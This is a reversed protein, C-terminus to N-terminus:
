EFKYGEFGNKRIFESLAATPRRKQEDLLLANRFRGLDVYASFLEPMPLGLERFHARGSMVANWKAVNAPNRFFESQSDATVGRMASLDPAPGAAIRALLARQAPTVIEIRGIMVRTTEAPISIKLPLLADIRSRPLLYFLRLGPSKFYSVEWTRLLAHAEDAFLGAHTLAAHMEVQLRALHEPSFADSAFSDPVTARPEVGTGLAGLSRFACAGDRGVEVLWAAAVPLDDAAGESRVEITKAAVNRVVRLSAKVNGVGRYFLFKEREGDSTAIMASSVDRPTLWVKEDTEPGTGEKGLTVNKWSLEGAADGRLHGFGTVYDTSNVVFTRDPRSADFGPARAVASPFFETLWGGSFRVQVDIPQPKWGKPPHFYIVPTELRMTVDPHCSPAGQFFHPPAESPSLLFHGALRHVFHPLPEDETNIGGIPDGSEDQLSTFTGWEHIVCAHQADAAFIGAGALMAGILVILTKM